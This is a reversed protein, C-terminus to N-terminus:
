DKIERVCELDGHTLVSYGVWVWQGNIFIFISM